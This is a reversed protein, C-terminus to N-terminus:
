DIILQDGAARMGHVTACAHVPLVGILEGPRLRDHYRRPLHLTGHEQSLKAVHADPLPTDWQGDARLLVVRGYTGDPLCDKGLQVWGGHIIAEEREAVLQVVPLAACVAIDTVACSGVGAQVLDYYIFNGPGISDIGTFDEQTSCAPTDGTAMTFDPGFTARLRAVAGLLEGHVVGIDEAGRRDYSHGSHVYFGRWREHGGAAIVARIQETATAAVGSRGYGADVEVFFGISPEASSSFVAATAEDTLFVTLSCRAALENLETLERPNLPLAITIREWGATVMERAMRLSTVSIEEVGYDRQWEGVEPHQHTKAHPRLALGHRRARDAMRQLNRRVRRESILLTPSRVTDLRNKM